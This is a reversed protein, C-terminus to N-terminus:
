KRKELASAIKEVDVDFLALYDKAAPEGGVSPPIM